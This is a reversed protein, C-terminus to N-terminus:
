SHVLDQLTNSYLTLVKSELKKELNSFVNASIEELVKLNQYKGNIFVDILTEFAAPKIKFTKSTPIYANMTKYPTRNLYSMIILVEVVMESFIHPIAVRNLQKINNLLKATIEQYRPWREKAQKLCKVEVNTPKYSNIKDIFSKNFIPSLSSIGSGYWVESVDLYKKIYSDETDIDIVILLGDYIKRLTSRSRKPIKKVFVILELDSYDHDENRTFSGDTAVAILNDGFKNKIIILLEDVINKREEHSHKKIGRM